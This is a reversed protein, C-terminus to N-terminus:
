NNASELRSRGILITAAVEILLRVLAVQAIIGLILPISNPAWTLWSIGRQALLQSVESFSVYLQFAMHLLYIYWVVRLSAFTFFPRLAFFDMPSGM